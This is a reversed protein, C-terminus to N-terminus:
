KFLRATEKLQEMIEIKQPCKPECEGCEICDEAKKGPLFPSTGIQHYREKAVETLDYVKAYILYEFNLPINVENPCPMCYKCATCYIEKLKELEKLKTDILHQERDTLPDYIGALSLNQKLMEISSMGSITCDIDPNAFVFRLALDSLSTYDEQIIKKIVNSPEVLRGGGVPGMTVTGLGKKKAYKLMESNSRDIMNYQVLMSEFQGSDIIIKLIEPKDHFSFSIHRILNEEKARIMKEIFNYNKVTEEFKEKDLSHFHYFDIYETDLKKLQEHLIREFDDGSKIEWLPLKTSLYVRERWGKLAKGVLEESNGHCYMYATDIYNIGQEFSYHIMEISENEKIYWKSNKEYEPLRMAGFGLTSIRIGTSGFENYRM